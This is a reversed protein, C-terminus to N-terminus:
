QLVAPATHWVTCVLLAFPLSLFFLVPALSPSLDEAKRGLMARVAASAGVM